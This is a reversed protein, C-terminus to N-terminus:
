LDPSSDRFMRRLENTSVGRMSKREFTKSGATSQTNTMIGPKKISALKEEKVRDIEKEFMLKYAKAPDKPNDPNAMFELLSEATTTPFGNRKAERIVKNTRSLIQEGSRNQQYIDKFLEQAAKVTLPEDGLVSALEQRVQARLAEQDKVEKPKEAEVRQQEYTEVKKKLEGLQRGRKGWSDLIDDVPQGQKTEIDKLKRGAGVLEELEKQDFETDGVKIKQVEETETQVNDEQQFFNNNSVKYEGGRQDAM